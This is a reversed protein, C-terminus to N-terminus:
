DSELQKLIPYLKKFTKYKNQYYSVRENNPYITESIKIINDTADILTDYEKNGIMALIAAGYSPGQETVLIKVPINLIDAIMQRWVKSKAGGGCINTEKITLGNSVAVELCDKLAFSVGEMIAKSMQAKSTTASINIFAGRIKTDNHPSREGVLYPLFVLNSDECESVQKEDLNYDGDNLIDELWWKRASAATLAPIGLSLAYLNAAAEVIPDALSISSVPLCGPTKFSMTHEGPPVVM